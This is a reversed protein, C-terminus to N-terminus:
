TDTILSIKNPESLTIFSINSPATSGPLPGVIPEADPLCRGVEPRVLHRLQPMGPNSCPEPSYAFLTRFSAARTMHSDASRVMSPSFPPSIATFVCCVLLAARGACADRLSRPCSWNDGRLSGEPPILKRLVFFRRVGEIRPAATPTLGQRPSNPTCM